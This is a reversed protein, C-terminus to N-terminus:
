SKTLMHTSILSQLKQYEEPSFDSRRFMLVNGDKSVLFDYEASEKRAGFAEWAYHGTHSASEVNVGNEDLTYHREGYRVAADLNKYAKKLQRRQIGKIGAIGAVLIACLVLELIGFEDLCGPYRLAFTLALLLVCVGYIIQIKRRRKVNIPNQLQFEILAGIEKEGIEIHYDIM